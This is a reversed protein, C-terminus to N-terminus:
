SSWLSAGRPLELVGILGLRRWGIGLLWTRARAWGSGSSEAVKKDRWGDFAPGSSFVDAFSAVWAGHRRANQLVYVLATRVERPTRLIRAHFRDALVAGTRRWVRNLGRAMRVALGTMGRSLEGENEAEVLLHVHNSQVSYEVVRFGEKEGAVFAGRVVEHEADARLSRLGAAIRMTVLVPFRRALRARKVHAVGAREGKPKRGAGRRKGGWNVFGFEKQKERKM